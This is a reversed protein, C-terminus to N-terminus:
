LLRNHKAHKVRESDFHSEVLVFLKAAHNDPRWTTVRGLYYGWHYTVTVGILWDILWDILWYILLDILSWTPSDIMWDILWDISPSKHNHVKRASSRSNKVKLLHINQWLNEPGGVFWLPPDDLPGFSPRKKAWCDWCFAAAFTCGAATVDEDLASAGGREVKGVATIRESTRVGSFAGAGCSSTVLVTRSWSKAAGVSRTSLRGLSTRSCRKWPRGTNSVGVPWIGM